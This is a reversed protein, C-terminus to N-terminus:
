SKLSAINDMNVSVVGEWYQKGYKKILKREAEERSIQTRNITGALLPWRKSNTNKNAYSTFLDHIFEPSTYAKGEYIDVLLDWPHKKNTVGAQGMERYVDVPDHSLCATKQHHTIILFWQIAHTWSGHSYRFHPVLEKFFTQSKILYLFDNSDMKTTLKAIQKFGNEKAFQYMFSSLIKHKKRDTSQFKFKGDDRLLLKGHCGLDVAQNQLKSELVDMYSAALNNNELLQYITLFDAAYEPKCKSGRLDMLFLSMKKLKVPDVEDYLEKLKTLMRKDDPSTIGKHTMLKVVEGERYKAPSIPKGFENLRIFGAKLNQGYKKQIEAQSKERKAEARIVSGSLLPLLKTESMLKNTLVLQSDFGTGGRNDFLVNWMPINGNLYQRPEGFKTYLDMPSNWLQFKDKFHTMLLYWQLAHTWVGHDHTFAPDIEKFFAKNRMLEFFKDNSLKASVKVVQKFGNERAWKYLYSSLIEYKRADDDKFAMMGDERRVLVDECGLEKAHKQLESELQALCSQLAKEDHLFQNIALWDAAYREEFEASDEPHHKKIKQFCVIMEDLVADDSVGYLAGLEKRLVENAVNQSEDFLKAVQHRRALVKDWLAGADLKKQSQIKETHFQRMLVNTTPVPITAVSSFSKSQLGRSVTASTLLNGLRRARM